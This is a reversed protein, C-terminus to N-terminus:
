AEVMQEKKARTQGTPPCNGTKKQERNISQKVFSHVLHLTFSWSNTKELSPLISKMPAVIVSLVGVPVRPHMVRDSLDMSLVIFVTCENSTLLPAFNEGLDTALSAPPAVYM